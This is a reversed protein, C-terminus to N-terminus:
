DIVWLLNLGSLGLNVRGLMGARDQRVRYLFLLLTHILNNRGGGVDLRSDGVQVVYHAPSRGVQVISLLEPERAPDPKEGHRHYHVGTFPKMSDAQPNTTGSLRMSASTLLRADLYSALCHLLLESDSPLRESWGEGGGNWRYLSLAGTKALERLRSVLYVQDPCVELYPLIAALHPLNQAVQPLAAVKRLRDLAVQGVQCDTVGHKPLSSNVLDVEKVLPRLVTQTLWVRLNENWGVLDMPDIGLRQSLVSAKAQDSSVEKEGSGPSSTVTPPPAVSLQYVQKGQGHGPSFDLHGPSALGGSRWLLLSNSAQSGSDDLSTNARSTEWARYDALYSALSAEDSLAGPSPAGRRALPTSPSPSLWSQSSLNMPTLSTAPSIPSSPSSAPSLLPGPLPTFPNPYSAGKRDPSRTLSAQGPQLGLLRFQHDTLALPPLGHLPATMTWLAGVVNALAVAFVALELLHLFSALLPPPSSVVLRLLVQHNADYLSCLALVLSVALRTGSSRTRLLLKRRALAEALVPSEPPQLEAM